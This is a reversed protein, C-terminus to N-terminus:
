RVNVIEFAELALSEIRARIIMYSKANHETKFGRTNELGSKSQWTVAFKHEPGIYTHDIM